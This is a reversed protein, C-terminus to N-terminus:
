ICVLCDHVHSVTVNLLLHLSTSIVTTVPLEVDSSPVLHFHSIFYDVALFLVIIIDIIYLITLVSIVSLVFLSFSNLFTM